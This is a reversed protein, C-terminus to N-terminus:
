RQIRHDNRQPQDAETTLPEDPLFVSFVTWSRDPVVCSKARISGGHNEVISKSIWLGLGTGVDKKTTFFPEFLKEMVTPPIGPGSDAVTLRVGIRLRGERERAESIRVRIRGGHPVADISNGLLNAFLQRIEGAVCKIEPDQRIETDITISKNRLRSHLISVLPKIISGLNTISLGKTERYFGLTQKTILAVRGLEEEASTLLDKIAEQSTAQRALFVLNTVAELPNNMEHAVTAALRGVSALRETTRLARETKKRQTIDRAIKAAGVIRGTEDKVPSITLSVDLLEGSKTRRITEFHEIREGRAITALIEQETAQLDDPIIKTISQGIMEEASFGFIQEARRNWSTVVGQLNKSVIADDSSEVIAAFRQSAILATELKEKSEQLVQQADMESSVDTHTGFWRSIKGTADRVPVVRTLFPRFRGDAGRLPFTMEFPEGSALSANMREIVVPLVSPDHFRRWVDSEMEEPRSGTYDFWRQNYWFVQGDPNAMFVLHSMSNALGRYEEERERIADEARKRATVDRTVALHVTTGDVDQLPAAHSEMHHRVGNMDIIDFELAEKAGTCIRGNFERFRERDEAAIVDYISRGVVMEACDVGVMSLGASNMHMLTGDSAVIKVCEPTTEIIARLREESQKLAKETQKRETIDIVVGFMRSDEKARSGKCHLWRPGHVPHQYRYEFDMQGSSQGEEMLKRVKQFDDPAIRSAWTQGSNPDNNELGFIDHLEDSLAQINQTPDWEWTGVQAAAQALRLRAESIEVKNRNLVQDTVEVAHILIGDTTGARNLIPQYVFNFYADEPGSDATRNFIAKMERGIFPKGTAYVQDLLEFFGQGEIEPIAERLTKGIFDKTSKRGTVRIYLDNVYTWHHEPGNLLAIAAPAQALLEELRRREFEAGVRLCATQFATAAHNAAVSALLMESESPFDARSSAIAMLGSASNLGIPLFAVRLRHGSLDFNQIRNRKTPGAIAEHERVWDIFAPSDPDYIAERQEGNDLNRLRIFARSIDLVGMVVDLCGETIEKLSRGVWAAPMASLAVLDRMTRQLERVEPDTGLSEM